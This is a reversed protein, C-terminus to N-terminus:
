GQDVEVWWSGCQRGGQRGGQWVHSFRRLRKQDSDIANLWMVKSIETQQQKNFFFNGVAVIAVFERSLRDFVFAAFIGWPFLLIVWHLVLYHGCAPVVCASQHWSLTLRLYELYQEFASQIYPVLQSHTFWTNGVFKALKDSLFEQWHLATGESQFANALGSHVIRDGANAWCPGFFFQQMFFFATTM